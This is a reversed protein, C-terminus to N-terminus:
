TAPGREASGLHLTMSLASARTGDPRAYYGPRHGTTVFGLRHYLALAPNNGEEVELHVTRVGAHALEQLHHLMLRRAGGRGRAFRALAVSLIEAEDLAMRSLVFGVPQTDRGLFLGDIRVSRDLLFADFEEAEWPRAFAAAHIEALRQTHQPGVPGIRATSRVLGFRDFLSV